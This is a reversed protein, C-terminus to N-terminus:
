REELLRRVTVLVTDKVFPKSIYDNMGAELFRERDGKMSHASIAVVPVEPNFVETAAHSRIENTARLGDMGPMSIDMLVLDYAERELAHIADHGNNVSAVEYGAKELVTRIVLLNIANDEAVLIRYPGGDSQAGLKGLATDEAQEGEAALELPVTLFFSTGSGTTSEFYLQGGMLTALRRSIALGFGAEEDSRHFSEYILKQQSEAIGPGTDAVEFSVESLFDSVEAHTVKIAVSGTQTFKIANSSLNVLIQRIRNRDGVLQDPVSNAYEVTFDLQKQAASPQFMAHISDVMDRLYFAERRLELHDAEVKSVDLIDDLVTMLSKASSNIAAVYRREEDGIQGQLALESMALIGSMPTRIEHSMNALFVSKTRNASQADERAIILDDEIQKRDSIDLIATLCHSQGDVAVRRRSEFRTWVNEGHRDTIMIEMSQRRGDEIARRLHEFFAAHHEAPIFVVFPKGDLYKRETGLLRAGAQNVDVIGGSDNLVFYGIPASEFLQQYRQKAGELQEQATLLESNQMELEIQHVKLEYILRDQTDDGPESQRRAVEEARKRIDGRGNEPLM